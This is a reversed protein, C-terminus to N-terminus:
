FFIQKKRDFLQDFQLTLVNTKKLDIVAFDLETLDQNQSPRSAGQNRSISPLTSAKRVDPDEQRIRERLIPFPLDPLHALVLLWKLIPCKRDPEIKSKNDVEEEIM